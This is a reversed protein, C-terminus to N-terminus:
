SAAASLAATQGFLRAALLGVLVISTANVLILGEHVAAPTQGFIKLIAAYFVYTGPLKMSYALQYPSIGHLMLQGVYAYEGEDRELPMNRLHFRVLAAGAIVM